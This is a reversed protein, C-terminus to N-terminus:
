SRSRRRSPPATVEAAAAEIEAQLMRIDRSAAELKELIEKTHQRSLEQSRLREQRRAKGKEVEPRVTGLIERAHRVAERAEDILRRSDEIPNRPRAKVADSPVEPSRFRM